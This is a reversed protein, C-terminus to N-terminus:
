SAGEGCSPQRTCWWEEPVCLAQSVGRGALGPGGGHRSTPTTIGRRPTVVADRKPANTVAADAQLPRRSGCALGVVGIEDIAAAARLNRVAPRAPWRADCGGECCEYWIYLCGGEGARDATTMPGDCASRTRARAVKRPWRGINQPDTADMTRRESGIRRPGSAAVRAVAEASM